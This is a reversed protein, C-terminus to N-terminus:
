QVRRVSVLLVVRDSEAGPLPLPILLAADDGLLEIDRMDSHTPENGPHWRPVDYIAEPRDAQPYPKTEISRLRAARARVRVIRQGGDRELMPRVEVVLGEEATGAVRTYRMRDGTLSRVELDKTIGRSRLQVFAVQQTARALLDRTGAFIGAEGSLTAFEDELMERAPGSVQYNGNENRVVDERTVWGQWRTSDVVGSRIRVQYLDSDHSELRRLAQQLRVHGDVGLTGTARHDQVVIADRGGPGEPDIGSLEFLLDALYRDRLRRRDTASVGDKVTGLEPWAEPMFEDDVDISLAGVPYDRVLVDSPVIPSEGPAVRPPDPTPTDERTTGVLILLEPHTERSAPFPNPLGQLVFTGFHPVSRDAEIRREAFLPLRTYPLPGSQKRVIHSPVSPDPQLVRAEVSLASTPTRNPGHRRGAMDEVYLDLWLGYRAEDARVTLTSPESPFVRYAPHNATLHTFSLLSSTLGDVALRAGGLHEVGPLAGIDRVSTALLQNHVVHALGSERPGPSLRLTDSSAVAGASTVAFIQVDIRMAPPTDVFDGQLSAIRRQEREGCEAAIHQDLRVLLRRRTTSAFPRPADELDTWGAGIHERIFREAWRARTLSGDGHAADIGSAFTAALSRRAERGHKLEPAFEFFHIREAGDRPARMVDSFLALTRARLSGQRAELDPLPPEPEFSLGTKLGEEHTHRLWVLLGARLDDLSHPDVTGGLGLFGSEDIRRLAERYQSDAERWDNKDLAVRAARSRREVDERLRDYEVVDQSEVLQLLQRWMDDRDPSRAEIAALLANAEENKADMALAGLAKRRAEEFRGANLAERAAALSGEIRRMVEERMRERMVRDQESQSLAGEDVRRHTAKQQKAWDRLPDDLTEDAVMRDWVSEAQEPRGATAHIRALAKLAAGRQPPTADGHEAVRVYLRGAEEVDGEIREVHQARHLLDAVQTEDGRSASGACLVMLAVACRLALRPLQGAPEFM